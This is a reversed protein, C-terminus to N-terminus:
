NEKELRRFLTMRIGRILHLVGDKTLNDPNDHLGTIMLDAKVSTIRRCFMELIELLLFLIEAIQAVLFDSDGTLM